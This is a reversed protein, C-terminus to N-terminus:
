KQGAPKWKDALRMAEAIQGQSMRAALQSQNVMSSERGKRAALEYWMYALITNQEVGKGIEYMIALSHQAEVDGRDAAIQVKGANRAISADRAVAEVRKRQEEQDRQQQLFTRQWSSRDEQRENRYREERDRRDQIELIQQQHLQEQQTDYQMQRMRASDALGGSAVILLLIVTLFLTILNRM